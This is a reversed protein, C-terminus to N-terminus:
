NVMLTKNGDVTNSITKGTREEFQTILENSIDRNAAAKFGARAEREAIEDATAGRARQIRLKKREM